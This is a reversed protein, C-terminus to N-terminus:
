AVMEMRLGRADTPANELPLVVARGRVVRRASVLCVAADIIDDRKVNSRGLRVREADVDLLVGHARLVQLREREGEPERKSHALPAGALTAFIVEPHAERVIQQLAPTILDDVARIKPMIAFAQKSLSKGCARANVRCADLYCGENLACRCPPRFVSNRRQQLLKRAALDCDRPVDILGIPVDIVVVAEGRAALDFVDDLNWLGFEAKKDGSDLAGVWGASCGDLGLTKM